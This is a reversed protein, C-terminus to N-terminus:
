KRSDVFHCLLVIHGDEIAAMRAAALTEFGATELKVRTDDLMLWQAEMVVIAQLHISESHHAIAAGQGLFTREECRHPM